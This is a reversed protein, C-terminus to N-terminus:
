FFYVNGNRSERFFLFLAGAGYLVAAAYYVPILIHLLWMTELVAPFSVAAIFLIGNVIMKGIFKKAFGDYMNFVLILFFFIM